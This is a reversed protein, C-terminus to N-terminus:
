RLLTAYYVAAVAHVLAAVFLSIGVPIHLTRWVGLAQRATALMGLQRQLSTRRQLLAALQRAQVRGAPDLQKVIRRWRLRSKLDIWGRTFLLGAGSAGVAPTQEMQGALAQIAERQGKLWRALESSAQRIQEQLASAEVEVGDLSRPVATYIHRGIFGSVVIVGTLLMAVGAVGNFKWSSHLLVLYPGVLGTFIHFELWASMRGWRARRSRKRLSYLTETALMLLFGLIGILHGYFDSAAPIEKYWALMAGYVATSLVIAVLSYWLERNGRRM